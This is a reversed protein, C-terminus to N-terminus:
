RPSRPQPNAPPAFPVPETHAKLSEVEDRLEHLEEKVVDAWQNMESVWIRLNELWPPRQDDPPLEVGEITQWGGRPRKPKWENRVKEFKEKFPKKDGRPM